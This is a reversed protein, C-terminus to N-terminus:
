VDQKVCMSAFSAAASRLCRASACRHHPVTRAPLAAVQLGARNEPWLCGEECYTAQNDFKAHYFCMSTRPATTQDQMRRHPNGRWVSSAQQHQQPWKSVPIWVNKWRAGLTAADLDL